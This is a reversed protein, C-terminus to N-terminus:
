QIYIKHVFINKGFLDLITQPKEAGRDISETIRHKSESLHFIKTSPFGTNKEKSAKWFSTNKKNQNNQKHKDVKLFMKQEQCVMENETAKSKQKKVPHTIRTM